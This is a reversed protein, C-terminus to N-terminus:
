KRLLLRFDFYTSYQINNKKCDIYDRRKTKDYKLLLEDISQEHSIDKKNKRTDKWKHYTLLNEQIASVFDRHTM